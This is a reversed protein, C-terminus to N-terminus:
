KCRTLNIITEDSLTTILHYLNYLFFALLLSPKVSKVEVKMVELSKESLGTRGLVILGRPLLVIKM